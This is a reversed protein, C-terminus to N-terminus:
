VTRRCWVAARSARGRPELVSALEELPREQHGGHGAGEFAGEQRGGAAKRDADGAEVAEDGLLEELARQVRQAAVAHILTRDVDEAARPGPLKRSERAADHGGTLVHA